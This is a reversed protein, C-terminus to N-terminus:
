TRGEGPLLPAIEQRDQWQCDVYMRRAAIELPREQVAWIVPTWRCVWVRGGPELSVGLDPGPQPEPPMLFGGPSVCYRNLSLNVYAGLGRESCRASTIVFVAWRVACFTIIVLLASFVFKVVESVVAPWGGGIRQMSNM